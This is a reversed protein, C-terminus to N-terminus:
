GTFAAILFALLGIFIGLLTIKRYRPMDMSSSFLLNYSTLLFVIDTVGVLILYIYNMHYIGFGEFLFPVLSFGVAILYFLSSVINSKRIGIYRPFSKVGSTKDGEFDMVDKMIERGSGALFAILSVMFVAPEIHISTLTNEEIAAAGFIFPIAMVYAIYFNGLLKVKKLYADYVIAFLATILAIVFCTFTVFYSCIIGLPFFLSFLYLATKPQLDGRALPRDIRKNKKDIDLDYYDNLAFTSAELFLATFFTLIFKMWPFTEVSLRAQSQLAIISGIFIALALMVGHELRMLEWVAKIKKM